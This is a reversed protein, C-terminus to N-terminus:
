LMEPDFFQLCEVQEEFVTYEKVEHNFVECRYVPHIEARSNFPKSFESGEAALREFITSSISDSVRSVNSSGSPMLLQKAFLDFATGGIDGPRDWSEPEKPISIINPNSGKDLLFQVM